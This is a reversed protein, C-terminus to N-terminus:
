CVNIGGGTLLVSVKTCLQVIPPVQIGGRGVLNRLQCLYCGMECTVHRQPQDVIMQKSHVQCLILLDHAAMHSLDVPSHNIDPLHTETMGHRDAHLSEINFEM